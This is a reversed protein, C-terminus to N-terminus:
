RREFEQKVEKSDSRKYVMHFTKGNHNLPTIYYMEGDSIIQGQLVNGDYDLRIDDGGTGKGKLSVLQPFKMKLSDPLIESRSIDYQVCNPKNGVPVFFLTSKNDDAVSFFRKLEKADLSYVQYDSPLPMASYGALVNKDVMWWQIGNSQDRGACVRTGGNHASQRSSSCACLM